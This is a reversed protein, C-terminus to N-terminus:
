EETFTIDGDNAEGNDREANNEYNSSGYYKKANELEEILRQQSALQQKYLHYQRIEVIGVVFLSCVFIIAVFAIFLVKAKTRSQNM